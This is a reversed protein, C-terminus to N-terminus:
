RRMYGTINSFMSHWALLKEEGCGFGYLCLKGRLISKQYSNTNDEHVIVLELGVELTM